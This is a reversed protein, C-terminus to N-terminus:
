PTGEFKEKLREILLDNFKAVRAGALEAPIGEAVVHEVATLGTEDLQARIQDWDITM